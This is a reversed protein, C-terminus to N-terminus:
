LSVVPPSTPRSILFGQVYDAGEQQVWSLEGPTEVGEAITQIGLGRTLELLKRAIVAKYPDTDVDRILGLDLKVFDPRLRHILNLSSYGSGLDDLAVRFGQERYYRVINELHTADGVDESETIEFTISEHPIGVEDVTEVTQSLCFVPDYISTPTFNVFLNSEVGNASAERIAARRAALDTQFLVGCRGAAAFIRGPPITSGDEDIGRLLCEQAYVEEPSDAPVIPQFHVTLREEALVDLLWESRGLGALRGLSETRAIDAVELEGGGSKFLARTEGLEAGTLTDESLASLLDRAGEGISVMLGGGAASEPRLGSRRLHSRVKGLTHGLPPWLYLTGSGGPREPLSGCNPCGGGGERVDNNACTERESM